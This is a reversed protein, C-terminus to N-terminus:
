LSPLCFVRPSAFAGARKKSFRPKYGIYGSEGDAFLHKRLAAAHRATHPQQDREMWKGLKTWVILLQPSNRGSSNRYARATAVFKLNRRKGFPVALCSFAMFRIKAATIAIETSAATGAQACCNGGSPSSLVEESPLKLIWIV